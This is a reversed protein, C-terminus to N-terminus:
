LMTFFTFTTVVRRLKFPRRAIPGVQKTEMKEEVKEGDEKEKEKEESTNKVATIQVLYREMEVEDDM